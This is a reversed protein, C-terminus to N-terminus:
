VQSSAQAEVSALRQQAKLLKQQQDALDAKAADLDDATRKRAAAMQGLLDVARKVAKNKRNGAYGSYSTVMGYAIPDGSEIAEVNSAIEPELGAIYMSRAFEALQAQADKVETTRKAYAADTRVQEAQARDVRNQASTIAHTADDIATKADNRDRDFSQAWDLCGSDIAAAPDAFKTGWLSNGVAEIVSAADRGDGLALRIYNYYPLALTSVTATLGTNWNPYNRVGVSNFISDGPMPQTTNLPNFRSSGTVFHGGEAREWAIVACVNNGTVPWNARNLLAIAFDGPTSIAPEQQDAASSPSTTPPPDAAPHGVAQASAVPGVLCGAALVAAALGVRRANRTGEM